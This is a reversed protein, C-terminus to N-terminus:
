RRLLSEPLVYGRFFPFLVNVEGSPGPRHTYLCLLWKSIVATAMMRHGKALAPPDQSLEARPHTAHIPDKEEPEGLLPDQTGYENLHSAQCLPARLLSCHSGHRFRSLNSPKLRINPEGGSLYHAGTDLLTLQHNIGVGLDPQAQHCHVSPPPSAKTRDPIPGSDRQKTRDIPRSPDPTCLTPTKINTSTTARILSPHAYSKEPAPYILPQFCM